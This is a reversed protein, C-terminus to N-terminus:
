VNRERRFYNQLWSGIFASAVGIIIAIIVVMGPALEDEPPIHQLFTVKFIALFGIAGIAFGSSAGIKNKM